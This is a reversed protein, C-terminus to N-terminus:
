IQSDIYIGSLSWFDARSILTSWNIGSPNTWPTSDLYSTGLYPTSDYTSIQNSNKYVQELPYIAGYELGNHDPNFINICGNCLGQPQTTFESGACDHFVLRIITPLLPRSENPDDPRAFTDIRTRIDLELSKIESLSLSDLEIFNILIIVFWFGLIRM